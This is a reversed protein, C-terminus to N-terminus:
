NTVRCIVKSCTEPGALKLIIYFPLYKLIHSTRLLSSKSEVDKKISLLRDSKEYQSFDKIVGFLISASRKHVAIKIDVSYEDSNFEKDLLDIILLKDQLRKINKTATISGERETRNQYLSFNNFGIRQTNFFVRPVWEEDEHLIGPYFTLGKKEFYDKSITFIWAGLWCDPYEEIETYVESSKLKSLRPIDFQYACPKIADSGDEFSERRSIIFDPYNQKEIANKLNIMSGPSLRDDSDLLIFYEGVAIKMGSNRAESLGANKQHIVHIWSDQEALQDCIKGTNDTAGDDILIMEYDTFDQSEVSRVAEVLYKDVNYCPVVVSFFPNSM